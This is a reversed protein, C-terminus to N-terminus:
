SQGNIKLCRKCKMSERPNPFIGGENEDLLPCRGCLSARHGYKSLETPHRLHVRKPNRTDPHNFFSADRMYWTLEKM